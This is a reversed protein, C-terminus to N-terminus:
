RLRAVVRDPRADNDLLLAEAKAGRRDLENMVRAARDLKSRYPPNGLVLELGSKGIVISIGGTGVHIEQLPARAALPSMGYDGELDLARRVIKRVGQPDSVLTDPEIGTLVVLDDPDGPELKKFTEGSPSAIWMDGAAVLIAAQREEVDITVTGPLRRTFTARAIWPDSELKKRSRDLDLLFVNDGVNVNSESAIKEPTSRKVGSVVIQQVAFRPSTTVYKKAAYATGIAVGVITVFGFFSRMFASVRSPTKPAESREPEVSSSSPPGEMVDPPISPSKVRRNRPKSPPTTM